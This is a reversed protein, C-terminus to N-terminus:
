KIVKLNLLDRITQNSRPVSAIMRQAVVSEGNRYASRRIQAKHLRYSVQCPTLGTTETIFKTSFGMGALIATQIDEDSSWTVRLPKTKM